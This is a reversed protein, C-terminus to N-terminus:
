PSQKLVSPDFYVENRIIKGDLIEVIDMGQFVKGADQAEWKLIFGHEAPFVEIAQWTWNSYRVLLRSFYKFLDQKGRIGTPRAPDRYFAHDAYFEILVEPRNGTWAPLWRDCFKQAQESTM